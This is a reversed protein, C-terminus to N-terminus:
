VKLYIRRRDLQWLVLWWVLIYAATYAWGGAIAGLFGKLVAIATDQLTLKGFATTVFWTQLLLLKVLIPAVYALIPNAGFVQFPKTWASWGRMDVLFYLIALIGGGLGGALLIYPPTWIPKNYPLLENWAIGLAVAIASSSVIWILRTRDKLDILFLDGMASGLLVLAATPIASLLGNLHHPTLFTTNLHLILNEDPQFVGPRSGPVPLFMIALGYGVLILLACSVRRVIPLPYLLAGVFYALAILQLVGMSFSWDHNIAANVVLGLSFLAITRTLIRIDQRWDPLRTKAFSRASFPIAVGVCFLFWPFVMDALRLGQNWEAHKLHDPTGVDLAINNVLLMLFVTLGRFADLSALRRKAPVSEASTESAFAV